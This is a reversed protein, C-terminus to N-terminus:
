AGGKREQRPAVTRSYHGCRACWWWMSWSMLRLMRRSRLGHIAVVSLAHGLSTLDKGGGSIIVEGQEPNIELKIM